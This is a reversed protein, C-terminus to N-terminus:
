HSGCCVGGKGLFTNETSQNIFSSYHAGLEVHRFISIFLLEISIIECVAWERRM